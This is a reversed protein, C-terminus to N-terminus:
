SLPERKPRHTVAVIAAGAVLAAGAIETEKVVNQGTWALTGPLEPPLEPGMQPPSVSRPKPPQSNLSSASARPMAVVQPAVWVAGASVAAAIVFKRRSVESHPAPADCPRNSAGAESVIVAESAAGEQGDRDRVGRNLQDSRHRTEDSGQVRDKARNTGKQGTQPNLPRADRVDRDPAVSVVPRM